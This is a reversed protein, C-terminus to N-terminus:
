AYRLSEGVASELGNGNTNRGLEVIRDLGGIVVKELKAEDSYGQSILWREYRRLREPIIMGSRLKDEIQQTTTSEQKFNAALKPRILNLMLFRRTGIYDRGRTSYDHEIPVSSGGLEDHTVVTAIHPLDTATMIDLIAGSLSSSAPILIGNYEIYGRSSTDFIFGFEAGRVTLRRPSETLRRYGGPRVPDEQSVPIPRLDSLYLSFIRGIGSVWDREGGHGILYVPTIGSANQANRLLYVQEAARKIKFEPPIDTKIKMTM